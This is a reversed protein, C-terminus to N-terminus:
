SKTYDRARREIVRALDVITVLEAAADAAKDTDFVKPNRHIPNHAFDYVLQSLKRIARDFDGATNIEMARGRNKSNPPGLAMLNNLSRAHKQIARADKALQDSRLMGEEHAKLLGMGLTQISRFREKFEAQTAKRARDRAAAENAQTTSGAQPRWALEPDFCIIAVILSLWM